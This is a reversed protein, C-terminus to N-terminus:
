PIIISKRLKRSYIVKEKVPLKLLRKLAVAYYDLQVRYRDILEKENEVVDTKYDVLVIEGDEIFFADIIGQVLMGSEDKIVFPQERKLSGSEFSRKMRGAIDSMLFDYIDQERVVSILDDEMKKEERVKNFYSKVNEPTEEVSYDWIELMRHFATGYVTGPVTKEKQSIFSPVLPIVPEEPDILAAGDADASENDEKIKMSRKKLETVSIKAFNDQPDFSYSYNLRSKIKDSIEFTENDQLEKLMKEKLADNVILDKVRDDILETVDTITIDINEFNEKDGKSYVLFDFYSPAKSLIVSKNLEEEPAKLVATMILKERARTMAVYFLRMEECTTDLHKKYELMNRSFTKYKTRKVVDIYDLGLGYDNDPIVKATSDRFNFGKHMGALFVVPFELGKSKHITLIRVSNDNENVNAEGYDVENKKLYEIYRVFQFLGKYSTKAYELARNLLMNLNLYKKQGNKSALIVRGYEGDTLERLIEYVSTYSSKNRYYETIELFHRIKDALEENYWQGNPDNNELYANVAAYFPGKPTMARIQALEEDTFNFLLSKMSSTLPIDQMPNDIVKLFEILDMIESASFYGTTSDAHIPIGQNEIVSCFNETWGASTRLLIVIDSYRIPRLGNLKKDFIPMESDILEKIRRAIYLPELERDKIEPDKRLAVFEAKRNWQGLLNVNTNNLEGLDAKDYYKAGYKLMAKEDYEINGVAKHMIESFVENVADVVERRSRFNDSLDIALGGKGQAYNEYKDMFLEPRAMRFRYISQKVDGVLFVNNNSIADVIANQVMNSDQYEDIYIEKFYDRYENAVVESGTLIKLCYHEMDNFDILNKEKKKELYRYYFRRTIGIIECVESASSKILQANEESSLSFVKAIEDVENKVIKRIDKSLDRLKSDVDDRGPEKKTSLTTFKYDSLLTRFSDYDTCNVLLTLFDIDDRLALTYMYPGYPGECIEINKETLSVLELAKNKLEKLYFLVWTCDKFNDASIDSYMKICSDFWEDADTTSVAFKYLNLILKSLPEDDRDPAVMETMALFEERGEEYAEELIEALTDAMYLSSEAGDMVRMDPSLDVVHFHNRIVNLCFGHITSIHANNILAAQKYLRRPANGEAIISNIADLLRGKMEEAAAETFTMVLIRDIDYPDEERIIEQEIRKVLVATKGSGAAASVLLNGSHENIAKLQNDTYNM